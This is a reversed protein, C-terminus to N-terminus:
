GVSGLSALAVLMILDVTLAPGKVMLRTSGSRAFGAAALLQRLPSSALIDVVIEVTPDAAAVAQQLLRRNARPCLSRSYWPGLIQADAGRQLLCLSDDCAFLRGHATLHDLLTARTEGWASRDCARLLQWDLLPPEAGPDSDKSEPLVWREVHDVVRFGSKRYLPLGMASATLWCTSMGREALEALALHFLRVGYGRGRLSPPVILNGIWGSQEHAVATVMGAFAGDIDLVHACHSWTGQLLQREVQPVRWGEAAALRYFTEWDSPQPTRTTTM